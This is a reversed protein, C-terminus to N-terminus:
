LNYKQGIKSLIIADEETTYNETISIHRSLEFESPRRSDGIYHPTYTQRFASTTTQATYALAKVKVVYASDSTCLINQTFPIGTTDGFYTEYQYAYGVVFQSSTFGSLTHNYNNLYSNGVVSTYTDRLIKYVFYVKKVYFGNTASLYMQNAGMLLANNQITGRASPTNQSLTRSGERSRVFTPIVVDYCAPNEFDFDITAIERFKIEAFYDNNPMSFTFSRAKKVGNQDPIAVVTSGAQVINDFTANIIRAPLAYNPFSIDITSADLLLTDPNVILWTVKVSINEGIEISEESNPAVDVIESDYEVRVYSNVAGTNRITFKPLTPPTPVEGLAPRFIKNTYHKVNHAHVYEFSFGILGNNKQSYIHKIKEAIIPIFGTDSQLLMERSLVFDQKVVSQLRNLFATNATGGRRGTKSIIFKQADTIAYNAFDRKSATESESELFDEYDGQCILTDFVGFSNKALFYKAERNPQDAIEYRFYQSVLFSNYAAYVSWAIINKTQETSKAKIIDYRTPICQIHYGALYDFLRVTEETGDDYYIISDVTLDRNAQSGFWYLFENAYKTTSKPDEVSTLFRRDGAEIDGFFWDYQQEYSFAERDLAADVADVLYRLDEINGSMGDLGLQTKVNDVVEYIKIYFTTTTHEVIQTANFDPVPINIGAYDQMKQQIEFQVIGEASPEEILSKGLKTYTTTNIDFIGIELELYYSNNLHWNIDAQLNIFVINRAWALRTTLTGSTTLFSASNLTAAM